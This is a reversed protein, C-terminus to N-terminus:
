LFVTVANVSSSAAHSFSSFEETKRLCTGERRKKLTRIEESKLHFKYKLDTVARNPMKNKDLDNTWTQRIKRWKQWYYARITLRRRNGSQVAHLRLRIPCPTRSCWSRRRDISARPVHASESWESSTVTVTKGDFGDSRQNNSVDNRSTKNEESRKCSNMKCYCFLNSM